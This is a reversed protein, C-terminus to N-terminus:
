STLSMFNDNEEGKTHWNARWDRMVAHEPTTWNKM